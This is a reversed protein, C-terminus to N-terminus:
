HVKSCVLQVSQNLPKIVYCSVPGRLLEWVEMGTTESLLWVAKRLGEQYWRFWM